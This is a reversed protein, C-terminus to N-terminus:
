TIYSKSTLLQADTIQPCQPFDSCKAKSGFFILLPAPLDLAVHKSKRCHGFNVSAFNNIENMVTVYRSM